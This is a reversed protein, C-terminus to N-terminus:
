KSNKVFIKMLDKCCRRGFFVWCVVGPKHYTVKQRVHTAPICIQPIIEENAIKEFTKHFDKKDKSKVKDQLGVLQM